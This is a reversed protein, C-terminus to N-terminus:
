GHRKKSCQCPKKLPIHQSELKKMVSTFTAGWQENADGKLTVAWDIDKLARRIALFDAKSYDLSSRNFLATTPSLSVTWQLINHDSDALCGLVSVSDIMDPESTFVLDLISNNRTGSNV